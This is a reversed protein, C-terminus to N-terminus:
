AADSIDDPSPLQWEEGSPEAEQESDLEPELFERMEQLRRRIWHGPTDGGTEERLVPIPESPQAVVVEAGDQNTPAIVDAAATRTDRMKRAAAEIAAKMEDGGLTVPAATGTDANVRRNTATAQTDSVAQVPQIPSVVSVYETAANRQSSEPARQQRRAVLEEEESEEPADQTIDPLDLVAPQFETVAADSGSTSGLDSSTSASEGSRSRRVPLPFMEAPFEPLPREVYSIDGAFDELGPLNEPVRLDVPDMVPRCRM